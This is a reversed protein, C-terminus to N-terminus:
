RVNDGDEEIPSHEGYIFNKANLKILEERLAITMLSTELDMCIKQTDKWGGSELDYAEVAKRYDNRINKLENEYLKYKNLMKLMSTILYFMAEVQRLRYEPPPLFTFQAVINGLVEKAEDINV